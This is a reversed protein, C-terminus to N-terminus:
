SGLAPHRVGETCPAARFRGTAHLRQARSCLMAVGYFVGAVLSGAVLPLLVPLELILLLGAFFYRLKM